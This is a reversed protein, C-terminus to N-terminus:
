QTPGELKRRIVLQSIIDVMVLATVVLLFVTNRRFYAFCDLFMYLAVMWSLLRRLRQVGQEPDEDEALRFRAFTPAFHYGLGAAGIIMVFNLIFIGLLYYDM